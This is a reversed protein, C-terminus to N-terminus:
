GSKLIEQIYGFKARDKSIERGELGSKVIGRGHTWPFSGHIEWKPLSILKLIPM